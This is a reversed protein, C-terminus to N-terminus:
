INNKLKRKILILENKIKTEKLGTLKSVSLIDFHKEYYLNFINKEEESLNSHDFIYINYRKKTENILHNQYTIEGYSNELKIIKNIQKRITNLYNRKLAIFFYSYFSAESEMNYNKMCKLLIMVGEQVFNEPDDKFHIYAEKRIAIEYKSIFLNMAKENYERALYILEYDNLNLFM